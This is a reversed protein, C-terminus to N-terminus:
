GAPRFPHDQRRIERRSPRRCEAFLLRAHGHGRVPGEEFRDRHRAIAGRGLPRRRWGAGARRHYRAISWYRGEVPGGGLALLGEEDSRLVTSQDFVSGESLITSDVAVYDDAGSLGLALERAISRQFAPDLIPLQAAEQATDLKEFDLKRGLSPLNSIRPTAIKM